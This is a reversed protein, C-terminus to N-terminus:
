DGEYLLPKGEADVLLTLTYGTINYNNYVFSYMVKTEKDYMTKIDIRPGITESSVIVFRKETEAESINSTCGTLIFLSSIIVIILIILKIKKM